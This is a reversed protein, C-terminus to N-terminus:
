DSDQGLGLAAIPDREGAGSHIQVELLAIMVFRVDNWILHAESGQNRIARPAATREQQRAAAGLLM